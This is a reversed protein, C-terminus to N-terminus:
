MIKTHLYCIEHGWSFPMIGIREVEYYRIDLSHTTTLIRTGPKLTELKEYFPNTFEYEMMTANIFILDANSFDYTRYDGKIFEIKQNLRPTYRTLVKQATKHLDELIEIGYLASFDYLISALIVAGGVGSGFDYFVEGPTPNARRLLKSFGEYVIEGYVYGWYSYSSKKLADKSIQYGDIDAYLDEFLQQHSNPMGQTYCLGKFRSARSM